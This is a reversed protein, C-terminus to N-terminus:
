PPANQGVSHPIALATAPGPTSTEADRLECSRPRQTDGPSGPTGGRVARRGGECLSM